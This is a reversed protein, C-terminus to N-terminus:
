PDCARIRSSCTRATWAPSASAFDVRLRLPPPDCVLRESQKCRLKPGWRRAEPTPRRAHGRQRLRRRASLSRPTSRFRGSGAVRRNRVRLLRRSLDLDDWDLGLLESRRLGAYAIVALLLRDRGPKGPFHREWLEDRGPQALVRELEGM